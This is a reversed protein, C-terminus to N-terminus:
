LSWVTEVAGEELGLVFNELLLKLGNLAFKFSQLGFIGDFFAWHGFWKWSHESVIFNVHFDVFKLGQYGHM